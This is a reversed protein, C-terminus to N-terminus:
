IDRDIASGCPASDASIVLGPNALNIALLHRVDRSDWLEAVGAGLRM